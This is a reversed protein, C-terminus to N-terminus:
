NDQEPYNGADPTKSLVDEKVWLHPGHKDVLKWYLELTPIYFKEGSKIFYCHPDHQTRVVRCDAFDLFDDYRDEFPISELIYTAFHEATFVSYLYAKGNEGYRPGFTQGTEIRKGHDAYGSLRYQHGGVKRGLFKLLYTPASPSNMNMFWNSAVVPLYGKDIAELVQDQNTLRRYEPSRYYIAKTKLLHDCEPTWKSYEEWTQGNHEDPMDEYPVLGYKTIIELIARTYSWGNGTIMGLKRALKVAFKVSFRRGNQESFLLVGSAFVCINFPQQAFQYLFFSYQERLPVYGSGGLVKEMHDRNDERFSLCGMPFNPDTKTMSLLAVDIHNKTKWFVKQIPNM